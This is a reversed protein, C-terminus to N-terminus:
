FYSESSQLTLQIFGSRRDRTVSWKKNTCLLILDDKKIVMLHKVDIM